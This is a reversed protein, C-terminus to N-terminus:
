ASRRFFDLWRPRVPKPPAALPELAVLAEGTLLRRPNEQTLLIAAEEGLWEAAAARGDALKDPSRGTPRHADSGILHVWGFELWRRSLQQLRDGFDGSCSQATLQVRCGWAIWEALREPRRALVLNREPHAIVPTIGSYLLQELVREAGVPVTAKPLEVLAAKGLDNYTLASGDLLRSPLEPVLHLEAGPHLSIQIEAEALRRQTDALVNRIFHAPNSYVGNLHHPTCIVDRTGGDWAAMAMELTAEFTHAGDDIAPLLHTHCDIVLRERQDDDMM